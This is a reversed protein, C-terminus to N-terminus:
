VSLSQNLLRNVAARPREDTIVRCGGATPDIARRMFHSEWGLAVGASGLPLDAVLFYTPLARLALVPLRTRVAAGSGLLRQFHVPVGALPLRSATRSATPVPESRNSRGPSGGAVLVPLQLGCQGAPVDHTPSNLTIGLEPVVAFDSQDHSGMNTTQALLGGAFVASGGGPVTTTTSGDIFVNSQNYGLALKLLGEVSWAGWNQELTVGLEVGSFQNETEFTDFLSKTTGTVIVGQRATWESFQDIRLGTM